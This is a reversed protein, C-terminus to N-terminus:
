KRFATIAQAVDDLFEEARGTSLLIKQGNECKIFVLTKRNTIYANFVGIRSTYFLGYGGFFGGVGFLRIALGLEKKHLRKIEEISEIWILINPGLRNVIIMSGNITYKLPAFLIATVLIILPISGGL